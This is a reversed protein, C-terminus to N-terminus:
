NEQEATRAPALAEVASMPIGVWSPRNRTEYVVEYIAKDALYAALVQEDVAGAERRYAELFAQQVQELWAMAEPGTPQDFVSTVYGFSRLMGAVDRLASDPELREAFSKMPEGEFDIIKWGDATFLCQGLHFDGHVRQVALDRGELQAFCGRLSDRHGALVPADAAARDLREAMTRAVQGGPLSQSGFTDALAVHVQALATGLAAAHTTFDEGKRALETALEWGDEADRLLESIMMLDVREPEPADMGDAWAEDSFPTLSGSVWGFLRAASPVHARGLADHMQIDLNPGSELKRFIKVLAVDGLLVNTNSQEGGFVRPELGPQLAAADVLNQQWAHPVASGALIADLVLRMAEVDRPADHVYGLQPDMAPGVLCEELPEPRYSLLLQYHEHSGDPYLVTAYESRVAIGHEGPEVIWDPQELGALQGGRGKGAFWRAGLVFDQLAEIPDQTIPDQTSPDRTTLDDAGSM